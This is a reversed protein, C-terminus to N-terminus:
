SLPKYGLTVREAAGLDLVTEIRQYGCREFCARSTAGQLHGHELILCGGPKLYRMAGEIIARLDAFGAEAAVLARRPEARVGPSRLWPDNDAIYPPNSVILEMAALDLAAFWDSRWFRVNGIHLRRANREALVLSASDIDTAHIQWAPRETAFALAIAGSGTGLDLMTLPADDFRDLGAQVLTETDPRPVLTAPGVELEFSWFDKRGTLYAVPEGGERRAWLARFRDLVTGSLVQEPFAYLYSRRKDLVHCLVVEADRRATDDQTAIRALLDAISTAADTTM